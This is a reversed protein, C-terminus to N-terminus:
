AESWVFAQFVRPDFDSLRPDFDYMDVYARDQENFKSCAYWRLIARLAEEDMSRMRATLPIYDDDRGFGGNGNVTDQFPLSDILEFCVEGDGRDIKLIAVVHEHFFITAATKRGTNHVIANVFENLHPEDLINGGCVTVFQQQHLLGRDMLFDHVDSPIILADKTLGLKSRVQPLLESTEVDIIHEIISDPLGNEDSQHFHHICVLPAILTCGNISGELRGQYTPICSVTVRGQMQLQDFDERYCERLSVVDVETSKRTSPREQEFSTSVRATPAVDVGSLFLARELESSESASLYDDYWFDTSEQRSIADDRNLQVSIPTIENKEERFSSDDMRAEPPEMIDPIIRSKPRQSFQIPVPLPSLAANTEPPPRFLMETISESGCFFDIWPLDEYVVPQDSPSDRQSARERALQALKDLRKKEAAAEEGVVDNLLQCVREADLNHQRREDRHRSSFYYGHKPLEVLATEVFQMGMAYAIEYRKQLYFSEFASLIQHNLAYHKTIDTAQHTAGLSLQRGASLSRRFSSPRGGHSKRPRESSVRHHM